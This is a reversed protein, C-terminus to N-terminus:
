KKHGWARGEDFIVDRSIVVKHNKPNYMRYAKRSECYGIFIYPESKPHLKQRHEKPLHVYGLCGFVRFHNMNSRKNYWAEFPTIGHLSSPPCRNLIYM